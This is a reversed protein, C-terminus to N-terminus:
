AGKGEIKDLAPVPTLFEIGDSAIATLVAGVLRQPTTNDCSLHVSWHGGDKAGFGLSKLTKETVATSPGVVRISVANGLIRAAVKLGDALGVVFYRSGGSTGRVPQYLATADNLDVIKMTLPDGKTPASTFLSVHLGEQGAVTAAKYLTHLGKLVEASFLNVQKPPAVKSMMSVVSLPSSPLKWQAVPEVALTDAPWVRLYWETTDFTQEKDLYFKYGLAVLEGHFYECEQGIKTFLMKPSFNIAVNGVGKQSASGYYYYNSTSTLGV